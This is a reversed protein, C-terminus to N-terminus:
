LVMMWLNPRLDMSESSESWQKGEPHEDLPKDIEGEQAHPSGM